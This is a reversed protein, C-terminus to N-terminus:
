MVLLTINCRMEITKVQKFAMSSAMPSVSVPVLAMVHGFFDHQVENPATTGNLLVNTDHSALVLAM